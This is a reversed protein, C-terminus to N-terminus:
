HGDVTWGLAEAGAVTAFHGTQLDLIVASDFGELSRFTEPLDQAWRPVSWLIFRGDPSEFAEFQFPPGVCYEVLQLTETDLFFTRSQDDLDREIGVLRGARSVWPIRLNPLGLLSSPSPYGWGPPVIISTMHQAYSTGSTAQDLTMNLSIDLGYTQTVAMNLLGNLGQWVRTRFAAMLYWDMWEKGNVWPFVTSEGQSRRSDFAFRYPQPQQPDLFDIFVDLQERNLDYTGLYYLGRPAQGLDTTAFFPAATGSFIDITIAPLAQSASPAEAVQSDIIIQSSSLWRASPGFKVDTITVAEPGRDPVVRLSGNYFDGDYYMTAVRWQDYGDMSRIWLEWYEVREEPSSTAV